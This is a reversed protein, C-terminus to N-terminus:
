EQAQTINETNENSDTTGNNIDGENGIYNNTGNGESDQSVTTTNESVYDYQFWEYAGFAIICILLVEVIIHAINTRRNIREMRAMDSEHVIYPIMTTKEDM